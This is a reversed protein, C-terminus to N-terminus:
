CRLSKDNRVVSVSATKGDIQMEVRQEQVTPIKGLRYVGSSLLQADLHVGALGYLVAGASLVAAAAAVARPFRAGAVRLLVVGLALDIAAGAVIL